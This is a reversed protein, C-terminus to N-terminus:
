IKLWAPQLAIKGSLDPLQEIESVLVASEIGHQESKSVASHPHQNAFINLADRFSKTMEENLPM